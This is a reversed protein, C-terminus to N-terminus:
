MFMLVGLTAHLLAFAVTIRALWIHLKINTSKGSHILYGLTAVSFIMILTLIGGYMILPFGLIQYLSISTLM